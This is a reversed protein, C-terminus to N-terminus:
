SGELHGFTWVLRRWRPYNMAVPRKKIEILLDIAAFIIYKGILRASFLDSKRGRKVNRAFLRPLLAIVL